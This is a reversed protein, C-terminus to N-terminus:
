TLYYLFLSLLSISVVLINALAPWESMRWDRTLWQSLVCMLTLLYIGGTDNNPMIKWYQKDRSTKPFFLLHPRLSVWFFISWTSEPSQSVARRIGAILYPSGLIYCYFLHDFHNWPGLLTCIQMCTPPCSHPKRCSVVIPRYSFLGHRDCKCLLFKIGETYSACLINDGM